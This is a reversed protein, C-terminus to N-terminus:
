ILIKLREQMNPLENVDATTSPTTEVDTIFQYRLLWSIWLIFTWKLAKVRTCWGTGMPKKPMVPPESIDKKLRLILREEAEM